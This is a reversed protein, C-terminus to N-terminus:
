CSILLVAILLIIKVGPILNYYSDMIELDKLQKIINFLKRIDREIMEREKESLEKDEELQKQLIAIAKQLSVAGRRSHQFIERQIPELNKM